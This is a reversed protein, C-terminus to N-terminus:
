FYTERSLLHPGVTPVGPADEPHVLELLDLLKDDGRGVVVLGPLGHVVHDVIGLAETLDEADRVPKRVM